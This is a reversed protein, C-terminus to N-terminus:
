GFAQEIDRAANSKMDVGGTQIQIKDVIDQIWKEMQQPTKSNSIPLKFWTHQTLEKATARKEPSKELCRSIFHSFEKSFNLEPPCSPIPGNVQNSFLLLLLLCFHSSFAM